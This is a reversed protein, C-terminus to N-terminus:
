CEERTLPEDRNHVARRIVSKAFDAGQKRRSAAQIGCFIRHWGDRGLEGFQDCHLGNVAGTQLGGKGGASSTGRKWGRHPVSNVFNQCTRVNAVNPAIGRYLLLLMPFPQNAGRKPRLSACHRRVIRVLQCLGGLGPEAAAGGRAAGVARGRCTPQM